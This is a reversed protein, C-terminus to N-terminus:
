EAGDSGAESNDKESDWEHNWPDPMSDDDGQSEVVDSGAESNSNFNDDRSSETSSSEAGSSSSATSTYVGMNHRMFRAEEALEENEEMWFARSHESDGDCTGNTPEYFDNNLDQSLASFSSWQDEYPHFGYRRREKKRDAIRELDRGAKAVFKAEEIDYAEDFKDGWAAEVEPRVYKSRFCDFVLSHPMWSYLLSKLLRYKGAATFTSSGRLLVPRKHFEKHLQMYTRCTIGLCVSSVPDDRFSEVIMRKIELPLNTLPSSAALSFLNDSLSLISLPPRSSRGNELIDPLPARTVPKKSRSTGRNKKQLPM